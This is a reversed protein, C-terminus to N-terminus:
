AGSPIVIPLAGCTCLGAKDEAAISDRRYSNLLIGRVNAMVSVKDPCDKYKVRVLCGDLVCVQEGSSNIPASLSSTNKQIESRKKYSTGGYKGRAGRRQSGGTM